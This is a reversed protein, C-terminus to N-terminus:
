GISLRLRAPPLKEDAQLITSEGSHVQHHRIIMFPELLRDSFDQRLRQPLAAVDMKQAIGHIMEGAFSIVVAQLFQAPNVISSIEFFGMLVQRGPQALPLFLILLETVPHLLIDFFGKGEVTKRNSVVFM